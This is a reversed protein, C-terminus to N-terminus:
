FEDSFPNGPRARFVTDALMDKGASVPAKEQAGGNTADESWRYDSLQKSLKETARQMQARDRGSLLDIITGSVRCLIDILRAIM